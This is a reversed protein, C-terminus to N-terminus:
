TRILTCRSICIGIRRPDEASAPRTEATVIGIPILSRALPHRLKLPGFSATHADSVVPALDYGAADVRIDDPAEAAGWNLIHLQLLWPGPGPVPMMFVSRVAPGTWRWWTGDGDSEPPHFGITPLTQDFSASVGKFRATDIAVRDQWGAWSLDALTRLDDSMLSTVERPMPTDPLMHPPLACVATAACALVAESRRESTDCALMLGDHWAYAPGVAAVCEQWVASRAAPPVATLDLLIGPHYVSLIRAAGRLVAPAGSPCDLVLLGVRHSDFYVTDLRRRRFVPPPAAPLWGRIGFDRRNRDNEGLVIAIGENDMSIPMAGASEEPCHLFLHDRDVAEHLRRALYSGPPTVAVVDSEGVVSDLIEACTEWPTPAGNRRLSLMAFIAASTTV